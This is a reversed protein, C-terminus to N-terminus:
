IDFINWSLLKLTNSAESCTHFKKRRIRQKRDCYPLVARSSTSTCQTSSSTRNQSNLIATALGRLFTGELNVFVCILFLPIGTSFSKQKFFPLFHITKMQSLLRVKCRQSSHQMTGKWENKIRLFM